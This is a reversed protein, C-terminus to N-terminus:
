VHVINKLHIEEVNDNSFKAIDLIKLCFSYALYNTSLQQISDKLNLEIEIERLNEQTKHSFVKTFDYMFMKYICSTRKKSRILTCLNINPHDVPTETCVSLRIDYPTGDLSLDITKIKRKVHSSIIHKTTPCVIVRINKYNYVDTTEYKIDFINSNSVKDHITDYLNVPINTDFREPFKWGFRCEIEVNPVAKYKELIDHIEHFIINM